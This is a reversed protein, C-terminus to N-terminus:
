FKLYGYRADGKCRTRVIYTDASLQVKVSPDLEFCNEKSDGIGSDTLDRTETIKGTNDYTQLVPIRRLDPLIGKSFNRTDNYIVTLKSNKLFTLAGNFAGNDNETTRENNKINNIWDTKGSANDVMAIVTGASDYVYDYKYDLPNNKDAPLRRKGKYKQDFILWTKGGDIIAESIVLNKYKEVPNNKAYALKGDASFKASFIGTAPSAQGISVAFYRDGADSTGHLYFEENVFQGKVINVQLDNELKLNNESVTNTATNWYYAALYPKGKPLDINKILYVNGTDSVYVIQDGSQKSSFPFEYELETVKSFNADLLTLKIKENLKKDYSPQGVVAYFKKGASQAVFFNGPNTGSKGATKAVLQPETKSGTEINDKEAFLENERSTKNFQSYFAVYETGNLPFANNFTSMNLGMPPQEVSLNKESKDFNDKLDYIDVFMDTNYVKENYHTKVSFLKNNNVAQEIKYESEETIKTKKGSWDFKQASVTSGFLVLICFSIKLVNYTM